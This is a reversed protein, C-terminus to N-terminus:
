GTHFQVQLVAPAGQALHASSSESEKAVHLDQRVTHAITQVLMEAGFIFFSGAANGVSSCHVFHIKIM